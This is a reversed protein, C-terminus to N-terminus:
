ATNSKSREIKAAPLRKVLTLMTGRPMPRYEVVDFAARIIRVGLGGPRFATLSRGRIKRPDCSVGYDRLIFRVEERRREISLRITAGLAGGYAHRIVNTCAEDLALVMLAMQAEDFGAEDLFKGAARRMEALHRADSFFKLRLKM